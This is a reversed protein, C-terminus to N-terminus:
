TSKTMVDFNNIIDSILNYINLISKGRAHVEMDLLVEKHMLCTKLSGTAGVYARFIETESSEIHKIGILKCHFIRDINEQNRSKM